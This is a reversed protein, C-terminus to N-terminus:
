RLEQLNLYFLVFKVVSDCKLKLCHHWIQCVLVSGPGSEMVALLFYKVSKLYSAVSMAVIYVSVM